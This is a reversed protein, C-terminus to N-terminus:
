LAHEVRTGVWRELSSKGTKQKYQITAASLNEVGVSEFIKDLLKLFLDKDTNNSEISISKSNAHIELGGLGMVISPDEELNRMMTYTEVVKSAVENPNLEESHVCLRTALCVQAEDDEGNPVIGESTKSVINFGLAKAVKERTGGDLVYGVYGSLGITVDHARLNRQNTLDEVTNNVTSDKLTRLTRIITQDSASPIERMPLMEDGSKELHGSIFQAAHAGHRLSVTMSSPYEQSNHEEQLLPVVNRIVDSMEFHNKKHINVTAGSCFYGADINLECLAGVTIKIGDSKIAGDRKQAEQIATLLDKTDKVERGAFEVLSMKVKRSRTM